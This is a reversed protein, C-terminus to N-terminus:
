WFHSWCLINERSAFVSAHSPGRKMFLKASLMECLDNSFSKQNKKELVQLTAKIFTAWMKELTKSDMSRLESTKQNCGGRIFSPNKLTMNIETGWFARASCVPYRFLHNWEQINYQTPVQSKSLRPLFILSTLIGM